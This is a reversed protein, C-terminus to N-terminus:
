SSKSGTIELLSKETKRREYNNLKKNNNKILIEKAVQLPASETLEFYTTREYEHSKLWGKDYMERLLKMIYIYDIHLIDAMDGGNRFQKAATSLYVMIRAESKKVYEIKRM